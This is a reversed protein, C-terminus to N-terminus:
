LSTGHHRPWTLPTPNLWESNFVLYAISGYLGDVWVFPPATIESENDSDFILKLLSDQRKCLEYCWDSEKGLDHLM